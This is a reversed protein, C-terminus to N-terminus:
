IRSANQDLRGVASNSCSKIRNAASRCRFNAARKSRALIPMVYDAYCLEDKILLIANVRYTPPLIPKWLLAPRLPMGPFASGPDVPVASLDGLALRDDGLHDPLLGPVAAGGAGALDVGASL